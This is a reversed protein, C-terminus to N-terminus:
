GPRLEFEIVHCRRESVAATRDSSVVCQDSGLSTTVELGASFRTKERM